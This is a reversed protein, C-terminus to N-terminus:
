NVFLNREIATKLAIKAELPNEIAAVTSMVQAHHHLSTFFRRSAGVRDGPPKTLTLLGLIFSSEMLILASAEM